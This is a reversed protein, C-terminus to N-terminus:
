NRCIAIRLTDRLNRFQEMFGPFFTPDHFSDAGRVEFGEYATDAARILKVLTALPANRLNLYGGNAETRSSLLRESLDPDDASLVSAMAGLVNDYVWGAPAWFLDDTIVLTGAM